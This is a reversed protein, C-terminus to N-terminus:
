QGASPLGFPFFFGRPWLALIGLLSVHHSCVRGSLNTPRVERDFPLGAGAGIAGSACGPRCMALPQSPSSLKLRKSTWKVAAGLDSTSRLFGDGIRLGTAAEANARV